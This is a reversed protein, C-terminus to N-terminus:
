GPMSEPWRRLFGMMADSTSAQWRRITPLGPAPPRLSAVHLAAALAAVFGYQLRTPVGSLAPHHRLLASVEIEGGDARDAGSAVIDTVLIMPDVWRAANRTHAWDVIWMQDATIVINDARLDFHSLTDGPLRGRVDQELALLLDPRHDLPRQAM